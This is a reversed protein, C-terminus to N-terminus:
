LRSLCQCIIKSMLAHTAPGAHTKSVDIDQNPIVKYCNVHPLVDGCFFHWFNQGVWHKALESKKKWIVVCPLKTHYVDSLTFKEIIQATDDDNYDGALGYNHSGPFASTFVQALPVGIGFTYSCGFFAQEPAFNYDVDSRFGQQNFQYSVLGSQDLGFKNVTTGKNEYMGKVHNVVTPM